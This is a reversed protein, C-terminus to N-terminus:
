HRRLVSTLLSIRDLISPNLSQSPKEKCSQGVWGSGQAPKVSCIWSVIPVVTPLPICVASSARKHVDDSSFVRGAIIELCRGLSPGPTHRPIGWCSIHGGHVTRSASSSFSTLNAKPLIYDFNDPKWLARKYVGCKPLSDNTCCEKTVWGYAKGGLDERVVSDFLQGRTHNTSSPQLFATRWMPRNSTCGYNLKGAQVEECISM